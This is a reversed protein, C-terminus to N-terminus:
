GASLKGRLFRSWLLARCRTALARLLRGIRPSVDHELGGGEHRVQTGIGHARGQAIRELAQCAQADRRLGQLLQLPLIDFTGGSQPVLRQLAERRVPGLGRGLQLVPTKGRLFPCLVRRSGVRRLHVQQVRARQGPHGLGDFAIGLGLRADAERHLLPHVRHCGAVEEREVGFRLLQCQLGLALAQGGAHLLQQAIGALAM